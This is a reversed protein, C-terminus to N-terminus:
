RNVATRVPTCIPSFLGVIERVVPVHCFPGSPRYRVRIRELQSMVLSLFDDLRIVGEDLSAQLSDQRKQFDGKRQDSVDNGSAWIRATGIQGHALEFCYHMTLLHHKASYWNIELSPKSHDIKGNDDVACFFTKSELGIQKKTENPAACLNKAAEEAKPDPKGNEFHAFNIKADCDFNYDGLLTETLPDGDIAATDAADRGLNSPWDIYLEAKRAYINSNKRLANRANVYNPFADQGAKTTMAKNGPDSTNSAAYNFYILQQLMQVEAYANSIDAFAATAAALDAQALESVKQEYTNLYQLYGGALSAAVTVLGLGKFVSFQQDWSRIRNLVPSPAAPEKTGPEASNDAAM